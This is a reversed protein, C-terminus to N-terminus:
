QNQLQPMTSVISHPWTNAEQRGTQLSDNAAPEILFTNASDGHLVCYLTPCLDQSGPPLSSLFTGLLNRMWLLLSSVNASHDVIQKSAIKALYQEFFGAFCSLPKSCGSLYFSSSYAYETGTGTPQPSCLSGAM